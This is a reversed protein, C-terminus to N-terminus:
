DHWYDAIIVFTDLSVSWCILDVKKMTDKAMENKQEKKEKEIDVERCADNRIIGMNANGKNDPFGTTEVKIKRENCTQAQDAIACSLFIM